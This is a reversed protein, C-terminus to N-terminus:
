RNGQSTWDLGGLTWDLGEHLRNLNECGQPTVVVMDELRVGGLDKRYLGPEVTVVDGAVLEPGKMDLLPPEHVSLGVGHGTGHTIACHSDPLRQDPIGIGYGESRFVDTTALHVAEGTVGAKIAAIGAAKARAVAAIMEAIESPVDGHVVTRTCDGNYLTERNRPFIDVIVPEGSRLQGQGHHHCDAGQPGGAVISMPNSYGRDLLWHDIAARVRESTLPEGDRVLLGQSDTKATAITGCAMEMAAETAKQAERIWAIEQEDKSRRDTVGLELDCDLTMGARRIFEAFVLPLTRDGIVKKAGARRLCEAAAQATATERDGSLGGKPAYDAPCAVRDVRANRRARDLEIDRLILISECRGNDLPLQLYVVPDGVAFRIRHYLAGNSESIGAIILATEAQNIEHEPM